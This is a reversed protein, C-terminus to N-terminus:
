YKECKPGTPAKFDILPVVSIKTNISKINIVNLSQIKKLEKGVIIIKRM